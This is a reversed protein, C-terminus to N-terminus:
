IVEFMSVRMFYIEVLPFDIASVDGVVDKVGRAELKSICSEYTTFTSSKVSISGSSISEDPKKKLLFLFYITCLSIWFFPPTTV